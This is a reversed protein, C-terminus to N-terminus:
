ARDGMIFEIRDRPALFEKPDIGNWEIPKVRYVEKLSELIQVLIWCDNDMLYRAKM